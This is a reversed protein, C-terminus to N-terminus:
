VNLLYNSITSHMTNLTDPHDDIGLILKQKELCEIDVSRM